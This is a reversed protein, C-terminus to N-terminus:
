DTKGDNKRRAKQEHSGEWHAALFEKGQEATADDIVGWQRAERLIERRELVEERTLWRDVPIGQSVAKIVEDRTTLM